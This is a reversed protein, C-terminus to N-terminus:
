RPLQFRRLDRRQPVQIRTRDRIMVLTPDGKQGTIIELHYEPLNDRDVIRRLDRAFDGYKQTSGSREHLSRVLFRWGGEQKGAHRRALRYLWRGIGSTIDFYEPPIALVAREDVVGRYIWDPVTISM